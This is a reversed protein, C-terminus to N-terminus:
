LGVGLRAKAEQALLSPLLPSPAPSFSPPSSLSSPVFSVSLFPFSFSLFLSLSSLTPSLCPSLLFSLPPPSFSPSAENFDNQKKTKTKEMVLNPGCIVTAAESYLWSFVWSTSTASSLHLLCQMRNRQGPVRKGQGGLRFEEDKM